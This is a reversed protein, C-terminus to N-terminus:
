TTRLLDGERVLTLLEPVSRVGLKRSIRRLSAYVNSRSVALDTAAQSVSPAARVAELLERQKPSLAALHDRIARVRPSESEPEPTRELKTLRPRVKSAGGADAGKEISALRTLSERQVKRRRVPEPEGALAASVEDVLAQPQFPKTLYRIAGEIGGRLRDEEATRATLMLVPITSLATDPEAKLEGLVTWGDVGPMMVDLLVLDPKHARIATLAQRADAVLVVHHGELELNVRIIELIDPEDDVALVKAM